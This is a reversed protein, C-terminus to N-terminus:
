IQAKPKSFLSFLAVASVVQFSKQSQLNQYTMSLILIPTTPWQIILIEFVQHEWPLSYLQLSCQHLGCLVLGDYHYSLPNVNVNVNCQSLDLGGIM